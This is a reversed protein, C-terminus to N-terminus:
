REEGMPKPWTRRSTAIADSSRTRRGVELDAPQGLVRDGVHQSFGALADVRRAPVEAVLRRVEGTLRCTVVEVAEPGPPAHVLQQDGIEHDQVVDDLRLVVVEDDRVLGPFCVVEEVLVRLKLPPRERPQGVENTPEGGFACWGLVCRQSRVVVGLHDLVDSAVRPDAVPRDEHAVGVIDDRM